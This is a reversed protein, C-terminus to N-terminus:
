VALHNYPRGLAIGRAARNGPTVGYVGTAPLLPGTVGPAATFIVEGTGGTWCQHGSIRPTDPAGVPLPTLEGSPVEVVALTSGNPGSRQRITGDSDVIGGRNVQVLLRGPNGPDFQLHPNFLDEVECLAREAGTVLDVLQLAFRNDRVHFPGGVFWREDPSITGKPADPSVFGSTQASQKFRHLERVTLDALDIGLLRHGERSVADGAVLYVANLPANAAVPVGTAVRVLRMTPLDCVWLEPARGFPRRQLAIRRGDASAFRQECYINHSTVPESTLQAISAGCLPDTGCGITEDSWISVTKM